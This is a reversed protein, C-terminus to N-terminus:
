KYNVLCELQEFFTRALKEPLGHPFFGDQTSKDQAQKMLAITKPPQSMGKKNVIADIEKHFLEDFSLGDNEDSHYFGYEEAWKLGYKMLVYYETVQKKLEEKM